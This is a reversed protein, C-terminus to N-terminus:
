LARVQAGVENIIGNLEALTIRVMGAPAQKSWGEYELRQAYPLSNTVYIMQGNIVISNIAEASKALTAGGSPDIAMSTSDDVSGNGINWNARFRGTDVPSKLVIRQDVELMLKRMFLQHKAKAQDIQRKFGARFRDNNAVACSSKTFCPLM